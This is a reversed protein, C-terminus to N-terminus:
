CHEAFKCISSLWTFSKVRFAAWWRSTFRMREYRVQLLRSLVQTPFRRMRSFCIYTKSIAPLSRLVLKDEALNVLQLHTHTVADLLDIHQTLSETGSTVLRDPVSWYILTKNSKKKKKKKELKPRSIIKIKVLKLAQFERFHPNECFHFNFIASCFIKRPFFDVLM